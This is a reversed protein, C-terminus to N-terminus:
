QDRFFATLQAATERPMHDIFFHGGPLTATQLNSCRQRWQAEMDFLKGMVGNSGWFTLVPCVVKVTVDASDHDLDVLAAARYDACMGRITEPDRWCRRYEALQGPNFDELRAKGWGLSRFLM